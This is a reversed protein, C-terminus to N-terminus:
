DVIKRPQPCGAPTLGPRCKGAGAAVRGAPRGGWCGAAFDAVWSNGWFPRRMTVLNKCIVLQCGIVVLRSEKELQYHIAVLLSTNRGRGRERPRMMESNAARNIRAKAARAPTPTRIAPVTLSAVPATMGLAETEMM